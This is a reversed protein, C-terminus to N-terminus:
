DKQADFTLVVEQNGNSPVPIVGDSLLIEKMYEDYVVSKSPKLVIYNLLKGSADVKLRVQLSYFGAELEGPISMKRQANAMIEEAYNAPATIQNIKVEANGASSSLGDSLPQSVIPALEAANSISTEAGVVNGVFTETPYMEENNPIYMNPVTSSTPLGTTTAVEDKPLYDDYAFTLYVEASDANNLPLPFSAANAVAICIAEDVYASNSSKQMECSFPRGDRGIRILAVAYGSANAPKQYNQLVKKLVESSYANQMDASAVVANAAIPSVLSISALGLGALFISFIKYLTTKM